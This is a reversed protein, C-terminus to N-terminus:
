SRSRSRAALAAIALLLGAAASVPGSPANVVSCGGSSSGKSPSSSAGGSSSGGDDGHAGLSADVDPETCGAIPKGTCQGSSDCAVATMCADTSTCAAGVPSAFIECMGANYAPHCAVYGCDELQGRGYKECYPMGVGTCAGNGDCAGNCITVPFGPLGGDYDAGPMCAAGQPASTASCSGGSCVHACDSGPAGDPACAVGDLSALKLRGLLDADVALCGMPANSISFDPQCVGACANGDGPDCPMGFTEETCPAGAALAVRAPAVLALLVVPLAVVFRPTSAM